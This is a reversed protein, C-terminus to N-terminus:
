LTGCQMDFLTGNYLIVYYPNAVYIMKEGSPKKRPVLEKKENYGHFHFSIKKGRGHDAEIAKRIALRLNERVVAEDVRIRM